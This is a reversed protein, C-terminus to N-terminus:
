IISNDLNYNGVDFTHWLTVGNNLLGRITQQAINPIDGMVPYNTIQLYNWNKRGYFNPMKTELTKYGFASFYDDIRKAYQYHLYNHVISFKKMGIAMNLDAYNSSNKAINPLVQKDHQQAFYSTISNIGSVVGGVVGSASNEGVLGSLPASFGSVVGMILNNNRTNQTQALWNSYQDYQWSVSPFSGLGLTFTRNPLNNVTDIYNLPYLAVCEGQAPVGYIGFNMNSTGTWLDYELNLSGGQNNIITPYCYPYTFLKNNKPTYGDQYYNKPEDIKMYGASSPSTVEHTEEDFRVAYEPVMFMNSIADIWGGTNANNIFDQLDSMQNSKYAYLKNGNYVGGYYGGAVNEGTPSKTSSVIVVPIQSMDMLTTQHLYEGTDLGEDCKNAGIADNNTHERVVYGTRTKEMQYIFSTFNDIEYNVIFSNDNKYTINTIFAYRRFTQGNRNVGLYMYNCSSYEAYSGDLQVTGGTVLDRPDLVTNYSRKLYQTNLTTLFTNEDDMLIYHETGPYLPVNHYIKVIADIAM